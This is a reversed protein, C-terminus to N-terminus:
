AAVASTARLRQRLRRVGLTGMQVLALLALAPDLFYGFRVFFTTPPCAPIPVQVHLVGPRATVPGPATASAEPLSTPAASPLGLIASFRGSPDIACTLGTNACRLLPRRTEIARLSANAAHQRPCQVDDFWADNTLNVLLSSGHAVDARALGPFIDEYCILPSLAWECGPLRFLGSIKGAVLSLPTGVHIALWEQVRTSLWCLIPTYEGVIVLKRKAYSALPKGGPAFLIASNAYDYTAKDAHVFLDLSGILLSPCRGPFAALLNTVVAYSRPSYLVEDPLAAEPWILLRPPVAVAASSMPLGAGEGAATSVVQMAERSLTDLRSYILDVKEANWKDPQPIAPQVLAVPLTDAAYAPAALRADIRGLLWHGTWFAGPLLVLLLAAPARRRWPQCAPVLLVALAAAVLAALLTLLPTGGLEALQALPLCSAVGVALRNWPFGGFLFALLSEWATYLLATQLAWRFPCHSSTPPAHVAAYRIAPLVMAACAAALVIWGVVSVGTLWHLTLLRGGFAALFAWGIAQRPPLLRPLAFLFALSLMAAVAGHWTTGAATFDFAVEPAALAHSVVAPIAVLLALWSRSDFFSLKKVAIDYRNTPKTPM